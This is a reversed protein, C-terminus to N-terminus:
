DANGFLTQFRPDSRLSDFDTDHHVWNRTEPRARENWHQLLDIAHETEGLAAYTCAVNYQTIPDDPAITLARAAWELAREREGLRALAASGMAAPLPVDPHLALAREARRIATRAAQLSEDTRGLNWYMQSLMVPCRFDDPEIEAARRYANAAKEWEGLGMLAETSHYHAEFLNPDLVVARESEKASEAYRGLNELALAHAVHAEALNPDLELAKTSAALTREATAEPHQNSFLFAACLAIGAYARSYTPDLDAAKAFLRQALLTHHTTHFHYFHRAQLYTDYAEVNPTPATEIARREQPLLTVKLQEVITKTIEDQVAFIDTLDRDYRDAWLHV